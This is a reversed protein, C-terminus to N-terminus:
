QWNFYKKQHYIIKKVSAWNFWAPMSRVGLGEGFSLSKSGSELLEKM